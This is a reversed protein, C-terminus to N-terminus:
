KKYTNFWSNLNMNYSLGPSVTVGPPYAQPFTRPQFMFPENPTDTKLINDYGVLVPYGANPSTVVMVNDKDAKLVWANFGLRKNKDFTHKATKYCENVYVKVEEPDIIWVHEFIKFTCSPRPPQHQQHQHQEPLLCVNPLTMHRRRTNPASEHLCIIPLM